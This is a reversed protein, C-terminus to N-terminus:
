GGYKKYSNLHGIIWAKDQYLEWDILYKEIYEKDVSKILRRANQHSTIYMENGELIYGKLQTYPNLGREILAEVVLNTTILNMNDAM